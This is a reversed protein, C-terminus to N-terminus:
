NHDKADLLHYLQCLENRKIPMLLRKTSLWIQTEPM